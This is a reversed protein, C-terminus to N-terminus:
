LSSNSLALNKSFSLRWLRESQHNNGPVELDLTRGGCHAVASEQMGLLGELVQMYTQSLNRHLRQKARPCLVCQFRM